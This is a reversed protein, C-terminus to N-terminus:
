APPNGLRALLGASVKAWDSALVSFMATDRVYGNHLIRHRRLIGEATAGLKAIAGASHANRSDCKLTVRVAGCVEFAHRLMLYKCAPNLASGRRAIAYFTAGIEVSQNAVDIDLFSSSGIAQRGHEDRVIFCVNKPNIVLKVFAARLHSLSWASPGSLFYRFTDGDISGFIEDAHSEALPELVFGFGRLITPPTHTPPTFRPNAQRDDHM